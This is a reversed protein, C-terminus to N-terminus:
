RPYHRLLWAFPDDTGILKALLAHGQGYIDDRQTAVQAAQRATALRTRDFNADPHASQENLFANSVWVAHGELLENGIKQRIKEHDLHNYQWIHTLEHALTAATEEPSFGSEIWIEHRGRADVGSRAIALGVARPDFGATPIFTGGSQRALDAQNALTVHINEILDQKLNQTFFRRVLVYLIQLQALSDVGFASCDMCRIRGDEPLTQWEVSDIAAGCFDCEAQGTVADPDVWVLAEGVNLSQRRHLSLADAGFWPAIQRLVGLLDAFGLAPDREAAGYRFFDAAPLIQNELCAPEGPRSDQTNEELLWALYDACLDLIFHCHDVVARALGLDANSDEFVWVSHDAACEGSLRPVINKAPDTQPQGAEGVDAAALLFRGTEPFLLEAAENLWAALANAAPATLFSQSGDDTLLRLRCARGERYERAPLVAPLPHFFPPGAWQDPSETYGSTDINFALRYFAKDIQFNHQVQTVPFGGWEASKRQDIPTRLEVRRSPRYDPQRLTDDHSAYVAGEAWDIGNIKFTRGAIVATQGPLYTQQVHDASLSRYQESGSDDCVRFPRLWDIHIALLDTSGLSLYAIAEFRKQIPNWQQERTVSVAEAVAPHLHERSLRRFQGAISGGDPTLLKAGALVQKITTLPLRGTTKIRRVLQLLTDLPSEAAPTKKPSLPQLPQSAFHQANALFYGQFATHKSVINALVAGGGAEVVAQL